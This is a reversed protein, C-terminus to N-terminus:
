HGKIMFSNENSSDFNLFFSIWNKYNVNNKESDEYSDHETIPLYIWEKNLEVSKGQPEIPRWVENSIKAEIWAHFSLKDAKIVAGVVSRAPIKLKRSLTVALNAFHHCVGSKRKLIQSTNLKRNEYSNDIMNYDYEILNNVEELIYVMLDYRNRAGKQLIRQVITEIVSNNLHYFENGVLYKTDSDLPAEELPSAVVAGQIPVKQM